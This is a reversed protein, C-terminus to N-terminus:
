HTTNETIRMTYVHKLILLHTFLASYDLTM